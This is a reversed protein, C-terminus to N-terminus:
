VGLCPLTEGGSNNLISVCVNLFTNFIFVGFYLHPMVANSLVLDVFVSICKRVKKGKGHSKSFMAGQAAEWCKGMAYRM